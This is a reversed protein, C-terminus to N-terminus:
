GRWDRVEFPVMSYTRVSATSNGSAFLTTTVTPTAPVESHLHPMDFKFERHLISLTFMLVVTCMAVKQERSGTWFRTM